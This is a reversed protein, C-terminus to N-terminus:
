TGWRLRERELALRRKVESFVRRALEDTDIEPAPARLSASPQAEEIGSGRRVRGAAEPASVLESTRQIAPPSTPQAAQDQGPPASAVAREPPEQGVLEWLDPPLPGIDTSVLEREPETPYRRWPKTEPEQRVWPSTQLVDLAQSLAEAGEPGKVDSLHKDPQRIPMIRDQGTGPAERKPASGAPDVFRREPSLAPRPRRTTILEISSDSSRGSRVQELRKVLAKEEVPPSSEQSFHTLSSFDAERPGGQTLDPTKDQRQVPWADELPLTQIQEGQVAHDETALDLSDPPADVRMPSRQSSVESPATQELQKSEFPQGPDGAGKEVEGPLPRPPTEQSPQSPEGHDRRQVTESPRPGSKPKQDEQPPTAPPENTEAADNTDQPKSPARQVVLKQKTETPPASHTQFIEGAAPEAAQPPHPDEAETGSSKQEAGTEDPSFAEEEQDSALEIEGKEKHKRLITQLRNWTPDDAGSEPTEESHLARQIPKAGMPSSAPGPESLDQRGQEEQRPRLISRLWDGSRSLPSRSEGRTARAPKHGGPGEFGPEEATQVAAHIAGAAPWALPPASRPPPQGIVYGRPLTSSPPLIKAQLVPGAPHSPRAASEPAVAAPSGTEAIRFLTALNAHRDLLRALSIRRSHALRKM